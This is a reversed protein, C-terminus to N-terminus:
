KFFVHWVQGIALGIVVTYVIGIQWARQAQSVKLRDVLILLGPKDDEGSGYLTKNMSDLQVQMHIHVENKHDKLETIAQRMLEVQTEVGQLRKNIELKEM